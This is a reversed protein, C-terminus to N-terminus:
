SDDAAERARLNGVESLRYQAIDILLRALLGFRDPTAELLDRVTRDPDHEEVIRGRRVRQVALRFPDPGVEAGLPERRGDRLVSRVDDQMPMGMGPAELSRDAADRDVVDRNVHRAAIEVNELQLPVRDFDLRA